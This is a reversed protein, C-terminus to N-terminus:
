VVAFLAGAAPQDTSHPSLCIASTLATLIPSPKSISARTFRRKAADVQNMSANVFGRLAQLDPRRALLEFSLSDPANGYRRAAARSSNPM